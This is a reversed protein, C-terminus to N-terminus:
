RAGRRGRNIAREAGWTVQRAERGGSAGGGVHRLWLSTPRAQGPSSSQQESQDPRRRPEAGLPSSTWTPSDPVRGTAEGPHDQRHQGRRTPAPPSLPPTQGPSAPRRASVRLGCGLDNRTEGVRARTLQTAVSFREHAPVQGQGSGLPEEGERPRRAGATM